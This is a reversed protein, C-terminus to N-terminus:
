VVTGPAVLEGEARGVVGAGTGEEVKVEVTVGVVAVEV